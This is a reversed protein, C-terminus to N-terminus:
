STGPSRAADLFCGYTVTAGPRPPTARSGRVRGQKREHWRVPNVLAGVPDQNDVFVELHPPSRGPDKGVGFEFHIKCMRGLDREISSALRPERQRDAVNLQGIPEAELEGRLEARGLRV